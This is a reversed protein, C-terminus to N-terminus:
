AIEETGVVHREIVHSFYSLIDNSETFEVEALAEAESPTPANIELTYFVRESLTVRYKKNM